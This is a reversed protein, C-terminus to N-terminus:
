CHPNMYAASLSSLIALLLSFTAWYTIIAQKPGHQEVGGGGKGLTKRFLDM